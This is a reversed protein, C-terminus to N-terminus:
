PSHKVKGCYEYTLNNFLPMDKQHVEMTKFQTETSVNLPLVVVSVVAFVLYITFTKDMSEASQM